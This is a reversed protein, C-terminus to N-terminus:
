DNGGEEATKFGDKDFDLLTDRMETYESADVWICGALGALLSIM